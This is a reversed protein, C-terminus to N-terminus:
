ITYNYKTCSYIYPLGYLKKKNTSLDPIKMEVHLLNRWIKEYKQFYIQKINKTQLLDLNKKVSRSFLQM